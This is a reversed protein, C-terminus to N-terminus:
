KRAGPSRRLLVRGLRLNSNDVWSAMGHFMRSLNGTDTAELVLRRVDAEPSLLSALKRKVVNIARDANSLEELNNEAATLDTTERQLEQQVQLLKL